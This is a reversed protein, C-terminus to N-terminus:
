KCQYGSGYLHVGDACKEGDKELWKEGNRRRQNWGGTM